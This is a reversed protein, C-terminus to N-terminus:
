FVKTIRLGVGEGVEVLTAHAFIEGNARLKVQDPAIDGFDVIMGVTLETVESVTMRRQGVEVSVDVEITGADPRAAPKAAVTTTMTSTGKTEATGPMTSIATLLFGTDGLEISGIARGSVVLRLMKEFDAAAAFFLLDGAALRCFESHPLPIAGTTVTAPLPLPLLPRTRQTPAEGPFLRALFKADGRLEVAFSQEQDKIQVWFSYTILNSQTARTHSVAVKTKSLDELDTIMEHLATEALLEYLRAESNSFVVKGEFLAEILSRDFRASLVLDGARLTVARTLQAPNLAINTWAYRLSHGALAVEGAPAVTVARNFASVLNKELRPLPGDVFDRFSNRAKRKDDLM